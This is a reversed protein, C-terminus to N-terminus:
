QSRIFQQYGLVAPTSTSDLAPALAKVRAVYPEGGMFAHASSHVHCILLQAAGDPTRTSCAPQLPFVTCDDDM